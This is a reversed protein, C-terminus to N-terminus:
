VVGTCIPINLGCHIQFISAAEGIIELARVIAYSTREDEILDDVSTIHEMFRTAREANDMIDCLYDVYTRERSM